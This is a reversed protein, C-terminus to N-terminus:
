RGKPKAAENAGAPSQEPPSTEMLKSVQKEEGLIGRPRFLLVGILLAGILFLRVYPARSSLSTPLVRSTVLDTAYWIGWVVFAGLVAGRNNGSGGVILMAWIIFTGFLPNFDGPAIVRMHHAYLAGGVGMIVAGLALAQLKYWFVNKGSAEAVVEDERVARLVRGWPSRIGRELAVYVVILVVVLVGLYFYNYSTAPIVSGLPAPIGNLGKTGNALYEENELVLRVTEAIGITAIALYDEKLRLTLFGIFLAVVGCVVGAAILGVVFPQHLGFLMQVYAAAAGQPEPLTVLAATYAGLAFFAAVGFNFLGTYGWQVNLGLAFVAYIAAFIAFSVTYDLM